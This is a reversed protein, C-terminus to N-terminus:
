HVPSGSRMVFPSVCDYFQSKFQITAVVVSTRQAPPLMGQSLWHRTLILTVHSRKIALLADALGVNLM